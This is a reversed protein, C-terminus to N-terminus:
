TLETTDRKSVGHVAAWWAGGGMPNELLLVPTPAMVTEVRVTLNHKNLLCQPDIKHWANSYAHFIHCYAVVVFYYQCVQKEKRQEGGVEVKSSM